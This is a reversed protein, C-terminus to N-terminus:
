RKPSPGDQRKVKDNKVPTIYIFFVERRNKLTMVNKM